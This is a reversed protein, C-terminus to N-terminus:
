VISGTKTRRRGICGLGILGTGLLFLTAPEPVTTAVQRIGFLKSNECYCICNHHNKCTCPCDQAFQSLNIELLFKNVKCTDQWNPAWFQLISGDFSSNQFITSSGWAGSANTLLPFRDIDNDYPTTFTGDSSVHWFEFHYDSWAYPSTNHVNFEFTWTGPDCKCNANKKCCCKNLDENTLEVVKDFYGGSSNVIAYGDYSPYPYPVLYKENYDEVVVLEKSAQNEVDSIIINSDTEDVDTITIAGVQGTLFLSIVLSVLLLKVREMM